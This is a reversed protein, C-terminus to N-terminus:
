MALPIPREKLASLKIRGETVFQPVSFAAATEKGPVHEQSPDSPEVIANKTIVLARDNPIQLVRKNPEPKQIGSRIFAIIGSQIVPQM